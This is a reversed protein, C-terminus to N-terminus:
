NEFSVLRSATDFLETLPDKGNEAVWRGIVKRLISFVIDPYLEAQWQAIPTLGARIKLLTTVQEALSASM